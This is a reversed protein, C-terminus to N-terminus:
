LGKYGARVANLKITDRKLKLLILYAIYNVWFKFKSSIFKRQFLVHNRTGYYVRYDDESRKRQPENEVDVVISTPILIIKGGVEIIRNSWEYDDCYLFLDENPYGIKDLLSKHFFMGGYMAVPLKSICPKYKPPNSWLKANERTRKYDFLNLGLVANQSGIVADLKGKGDLLALYSFFDNNRNSVLCVLEKKTFGEMILEYYQKLDNLANEQPVNDDDLLWVFDCDTKHAHELGVKYGGASGINEPLRIVECRQYDPIINESANDVIIIKDVGNKLCGDVVKELTYLRNGYTVIVCVVKM